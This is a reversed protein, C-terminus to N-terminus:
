YENYGGNKNIIDFIRRPMNMILKQMFTSPVSSSFAYVAARLAFVTEFQSGYKYVDKTMWGWINEIPNPDQSCLPHRLLQINNEM